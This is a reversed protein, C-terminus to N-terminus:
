DFSKGNLMAFHIIFMKLLNDLGDLYPDRLHFAKVKPSPFLFPSPTGVISYNYVMSLRIYDMWYCQINSYTLM